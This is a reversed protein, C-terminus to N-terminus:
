SYQKLSMQSGLEKNQQHSNKYGYGEVFYFFLVFGFWGFTDLVSQYM